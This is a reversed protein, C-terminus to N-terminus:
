IFTHHGRESKVSFWSILYQLDETMPKLNEISEGKKLLRFAKSLVEYNEDSVIPSGRRYRQNAIMCFELLHDDSLDSVLSIEASIDQIQKETLM